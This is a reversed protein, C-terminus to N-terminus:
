IAAALLPNSVKPTTKRHSIRRVDRTPAQHLRTKIRQRTQTVPATLVAQNSRSPPQPPMTAVAMPATQNQRKPLLLLTMAAARPAARNSCKPAQLHVKAVAMLAAQKSLKTVQLLITAAPTPAALRQSQPVPRLVTTAATSMPVARASTALWLNNTLVVAQSKSGMVAGTRALMVRSKLLSVTLSLFLTPFMM